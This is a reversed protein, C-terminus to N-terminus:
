DNEYYSWYEDGNLLKITCIGHKKGEKFKAMLVDGNTAKVTGSGHM